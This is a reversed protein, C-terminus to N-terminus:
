QMKAQTIRKRDIKIPVVIAPDVESLDVRNIQENMKNNGKAGKRIFLTCIRRKVNMAKIGISMNVLMVAPPNVM